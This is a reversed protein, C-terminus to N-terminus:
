QLYSGKRNMAIKIFIYNHKHWVTNYKCTTKGTVFTLGAGERHDDDRVGALLLTGPCRDEPEIHDTQVGLCSVDMVLLGNLMKCFLQLHNSGIYTNVHAQKHLVDLEKGVTRYSCPWLKSLHQAPLKERGSFTTQIVVLQLHNSVSHKTFGAELNKKM